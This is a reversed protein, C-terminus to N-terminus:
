LMLNREFKEAKEFLIPHIDPFSQDKPLSEFLAVEEIESDPLKGLKEVKSYYLVGFSEKKGNHVSSICIPILSFKEAGTEEILERAATQEISENEERHGGPIQWTTEEKVRVFIWKDQYKAMVTACFLMSDDVSNLDYCNVNVM